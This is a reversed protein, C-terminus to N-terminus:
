AAARGDCVMNRGDMKAQYLAQDATEMLAEVSRDRMKGSHALGISATVKVSLGTQPALIRLRDIVGRLREATRTARRPDAGPLAILFEEGGIRALLDGVRLNRRLAKAISALLQDGVGHGHQDNIMKFHDLDLMLVAFPAEGDAIQALKETAYRRNNVGTLPDTVAMRLGDRVKLRLADRGQKSRALKKARLALEAPGTTENVVNDAGLDFARAAYTPQSGNLGIILGAGCAAGRSRLDSLLNLAAEEKGHEALLLVADFDPVDRLAGHSGQFDLIVTQPRRDKSSARTMAAACNRARALTAAVIAIKEPRSTTVDTQPIDNLVAHDGSRDRDAHRRMRARLQALLVRESLPRQIVEDFGARFAAIVDPESMQDSIMIVSTAEAQSRSGLMAFVGKPGGAEIDRDVFIVDWHGTKILQRAESLDSAAMVDYQAARLKAKMVIRRTAIADIILIRRSM